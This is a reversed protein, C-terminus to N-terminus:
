GDSRVRGRRAPGIRGFRTKTMVKQFIGGPGLVPRSLRGRHNELIQPFFLTRFNLIPLTVSIKRRLHGKTASKGQLKSAM